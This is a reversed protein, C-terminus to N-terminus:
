IEFLVVLKHIVPFLVTIINPFVMSYIISLIFTLSYKELCTMSCVVGFFPALIIKLVKNSGGYVCDKFALMDEFSPTCNALCSVGLWWVGISTLSIEGIYFLRYAGTLLFMTGITFNLTFPLWCMLFAHSTKKIIEHEVHGCLEDSKFARVDEAPIKCIRCVLHEWFTRLFTGFFALVRTVVYVTTM